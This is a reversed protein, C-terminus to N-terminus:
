DLLWGLYPDVYVFAGFLFVEGLCTHVVTFLTRRAGGDYVWEFLRVQPQPIRYRGCSLIKLSYRSICAQISLIKGNFNNRTKSSAPTTFYIVICHFHSPLGSGHFVRVEEYGIVHSSGSHLFITIETKVSPDLPTSSSSGGGYTKIGRTSTSEQGVSNGSPMVSSVKIRKHSTLDPVGLPSQNSCDGYDFINNIINVM